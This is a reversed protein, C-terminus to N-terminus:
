TTMLLCNSGWCSPLWNVLRHSVSLHMGSANSGRCSSCTSHKSLVCSNLRHFGSGDLPGEPLDCTQCWCPEERHGAPTSGCHQGAKRDGQGPHHDEGELAGGLPFGGADEAHFSKPAVCVGPSASPISTPLEPRPLFSPDM